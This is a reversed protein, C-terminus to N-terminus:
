TMISWNTIILLDIALKKAYLVGKLINFHKQGLYLVLYLYVLYKFHVKPRLFYKEISIVCLDIKKINVILLFYKIIKRTTM